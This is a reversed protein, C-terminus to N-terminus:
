ARRAERYDEPHRESAPLNGELAQRGHEYLVRSWKQPQRDDLNVPSHAIFHRTGWYRRVDDAYRVWSHAPLVSITSNPYGIGLSAKLQWRADDYFWDIPIGSALVVRQESTSLRYGAEISREGGIVRKRGIADFWRAARDYLKVTGWRIGGRWSSCDVSHPKFHAIARVQTWGLWHVKRGAAWRMREAVYRVSAPGRHPRRLGGIAVYDSMGFLEDMRARDDGRVHVPIPSLGARQM